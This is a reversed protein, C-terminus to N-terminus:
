EANVDKVLTSPALTALRLDYGERVTRFREPYREIVCQDVLVRLM